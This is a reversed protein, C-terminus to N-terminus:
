CGSNTGFQGGTVKYLVRCAADQVQGGMLSFGAFVLMILAVAIVIYELAPMGRESTLANYSRVFIRNVFDMLTDGGWRALDEDGTATVTRALVLRQAIKAM